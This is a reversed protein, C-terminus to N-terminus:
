EQEVDRAAGAIERAEGLAAVVPDDAGVEAGAHQRGVSLPAGSSCASQLWSGKGSPM